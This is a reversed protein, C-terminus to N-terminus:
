VRVPPVTLRAASQASTFYGCGGAAGGLRSTLGGPTALDAYTKGAALQARSTSLGFITGGRGDTVTLMSGGQITTVGSLSWGTVLKGLLGKPSGLPLNWLYNLSLRQPRGTAGYTAVITGNANPECNTTMSKSYTYSAQAQIGHSMQKRLTVQMSNYKSGFCSCQENLVGLGLYPQRLVANSVTNTTLGWIPAATTAIL